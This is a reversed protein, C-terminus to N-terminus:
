LISKGFLGTLCALKLFEVRERLSRLTSARPLRFFPQVTRVERPKRKLARHSHLLMRSPELNRIKVLRVEM